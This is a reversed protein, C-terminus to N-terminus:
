LYIFSCTIKTWSWIDSILRLMLCTSWLLPCHSSFISSYDSFISSTQLIHVVSEVAEVL